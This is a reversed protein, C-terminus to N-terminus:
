IHILSLDVGRTLSELTQSGVSEYGIIEDGLKIYGTNAAGVAVGEFKSFLGVNTSGVELQTDTASINAVLKVLPTDPQIGKITVRNSISYMGHEFDDVKFHKGDFPAGDFSFSTITHTAIGITGSTASGDLYNLSQGISNTWADNSSQINTLYLTDTGQIEGVRIEAGRGRKGNSQSTTIGVIDGKKYGEGAGDIPISLTSIAGDAEVSDIKVKLGSGQGIINYTLIENAGSAYNKGGTAVGVQSPRGGVSEILATNDKKGFANIKRGPTIISPLPISTAGSSSTFTKIGVRGKKPLSVIPNDLLRPVQVTNEDPTVDNPTRIDPNYFVATGSDATFDAKYLKFKMDQYQNETWLSGNQSKFLAGM